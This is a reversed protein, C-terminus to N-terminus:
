EEDKEAQLLQACRERARKVRMRCASESISLCAALETYALGHEYRLLLLQKEEQTLQDPLLAPFSFFDVEASKSIAQNLPVEAYSAKKRLADIANRRLVTYLWGIPNKYEMVTRIHLWLGLFTEHVIEESVAKDQIISLAIHYMSKSHTLYMTEFFQEPPMM